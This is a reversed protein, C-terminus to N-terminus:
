SAVADSGQGNALWSFFRRLAHDDVASMGPHCPVAVMRSYLEVATSYRQDLPEYYKAVAFPTEMLDEMMISRPSLIPVHPSVSNEPLSVLIELGESHALNAIRRRQSQYGASWIPMEELRQLILAASIDSMKGNGAFRALADDGKVGFNLLSRVTPEQARNIVACGGEGFGWPKTHHFSIVESVNPRFPRRAPFSVAADVIIPKAAAECLAVFPSLDPQMGFLDTIILGDWSDAPLSSLAACDLLGSRDCDVIRIHDALPGIKTSSFGFASVAWVLPRGLREACSGVVAHLASTASSATVTTQSTTLELLRSIEDALDHQLPGFNTWRGVQASKALLKELRAFDPYKDEVFNVQKM